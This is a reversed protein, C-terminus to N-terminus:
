SIATHKYQIFIVVAPESRAFNSIADPSFIVGLWVTSPGTQEAQEAIIAILWYNVRQM